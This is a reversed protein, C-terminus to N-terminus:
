KVEVKEPFISRGGEGKLALRLEQFSPAMAVMISASTGIQEPYHADSSTIITSKRLYPHAATLEPWNCRASIEIGDLPLDPDIFGLQSILSYMPRDVHAPVLLGNLAKVKEAIEDIGAGIASILLREEEGEIEEQENVWVQHGFHNVDNQIDPLHEDLFEQFQIQEDSNEFFALCHAEERTTIEVGRLVVIGQKAGVKIVEECQRLSNHDTIAILSVGAEKARAIIQLPTMELSGCPSLVTHIHLDVRYQNM